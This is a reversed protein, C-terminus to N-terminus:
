EKNVYIGIDQSADSLTHKKKTKQKKKINKGFTNHPYLQYTVRSIYFMKSHKYQSYWHILDTWFTRFQKFLVDYM